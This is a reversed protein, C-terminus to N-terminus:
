IINKNTLKSEKILYKKFSSELDIDHTIKLLDNEEINKLNISLGFLNKFDAYTQIDELFNYVNKLASFDLNDNIMINLNKPSSLFYQKLHEKKDSSTALSISELYNNFYAYVSHAEKYRIEMLSDQNDLIVKKEISDKKIELIIDNYNLSVRYSSSLSDYFFDTRVVFTNKKKDKNNIFFTENDEIKIEDINNINNQLKEFYENIPRVASDFKNKPFIELKIKEELDLISNRYVSSRPDYMEPNTMYQNNSLHLRNTLFGVFHDYDIYEKM